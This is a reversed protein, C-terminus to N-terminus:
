QAPYIFFERTGLSIDKLLNEDKPLAILFDATGYPVLGSVVTDGVWLIRGDSGLFAAILYVEKLNAASINQLQGRLRGIDGSVELNESVEPSPPFIVAPLEKGTILKFEARDARAPWVGSLIRVSSAPFQGTKQLSGLLEDTSDYFNIQYSFEVSAGPNTAETFASVAKDAFFIQPASLSIQPTSSAHCNNGSCNESVGVPWLWFVFFALLAVYLIGYIFKKFGRM